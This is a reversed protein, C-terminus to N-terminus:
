SLGIYFKPSLFIDVVLPVWSSSRRVMRGGGAVSWWLKEPSCSRETARARLKVDKSKGNCATQILIGYGRTRISADDYHVYTSFFTIAVKLM